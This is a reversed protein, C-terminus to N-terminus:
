AQKRYWEGTHRPIHQKADDGFEAVVKHFAYGRKFGKNKADQLHRRFSNKVKVALPLEESEYLHLEGGASLPLANEPTESTMHPMDDSYAAHCSPCYAFKITAIDDFNSNVLRLQFTDNCVRCVAMRCGPCSALARDKKSKLIQAAKPKLEHLLTDQLETLFAKPEAEYMMSCCKCETISSVFEKKKRDSEGLLTWERDLHPAGHEQINGAHDLIIAGNKGPATRVVRGVMQLFLSLSKTPRALICCELEPYDFGETLVMCNVVVRIFGKRWDSMIAEYESKTTKSTISASPVGANFFEQAIHEAHAIGCAFVVTLKNNAKDRWNSIIDGVLKPDDMLEQLEGEAYDNQRKKIGQLSESNFHGTYLTPRILFGEEILASVTTVTVMEQFLDDLGKGDTREPTASLGIVAANPYNALIDRYSKSQARHAEDIVILDAHPFERKILTQISAVHVTAEPNFRKAGSMIVSYNLVGFDELKAACQEILSKRHALFLIHSGKKVAGNIISSAIVTKGGGTAVCLLQSKIGRRINDRLSDVAKQQYERLIITM